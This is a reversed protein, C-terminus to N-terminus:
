RTVRGVIRGNPRVAPGQAIPHSHGTRQALRRSERDLLDLRAVTAVALKRIQGGSIIDSCKTRRRDSLHAICRIRSNFVTLCVPCKGDANVYCRFECLTKHKARMHSQLSKSTSFCTRMGQAHPECELCIHMNIPNIGANINNISSISQKDSVSTMFFISQVASEWASKNNFLAAWADLESECSPMILGQAHSHHRMIILDGKLQAVWPIPKGKHQMCLIIYLAQTSHSCIRKIYRLRARVLLCDISPQMCQERVQLDNLECHADYRMHGSIRRLARMYVANLKGVGKSSMTLTHVCYLLRSLVLSGLFHFKLWVGIQPSGFIKCAIPSYAGIAESCRHQVEYMDSSSIATVSGVHKYKDVVVVSEASACTPLKIFITGNVRRNEMCKTANKGRYKLMAETKGPAWNINLGYKSFVDVLVELLKDIAKDLLIPSRAVLVLAEDDVYTADRAYASQPHGSPQSAWPTRVHQVVRFSLGNQDMSCYVQVLAIAYVANFIMAGFKCGQRGGKPAVIVSQMDGYKYYSNTHMSRIIELAGRDVGWKEFVPPNNSIYHIANDLADPTLGLRSLYTAPAEQCGQPLGLVYERIIKDFAKELDLFLVFISLNALAAWEIMARILHNALDTSKNKVCGHQSDPMNDHYLPTVFPSLLDSLIKAVHDLVLLGRSNGCVAPDGKGKFLTAIRGGKWNVPVYRNIAINNIISHIICACQWGGAKLIEAAIGDQGVAKGNALNMLCQHVQHVTPKFNSTNPGNPGSPDRNTIGPAQPTVNRAGQPNAGEAGQIM